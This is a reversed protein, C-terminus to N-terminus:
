IQNTLVNKIDSLPKMPPGFEHITEGPKEYRNSCKGIACGCSAGCSSGTSRCKCKMTKCLSKKSCSCCEAKVTRKTVMEFGQGHEEGATDFQEFLNNSGVSASTTGSDDKSVDRHTHKFKQIRMQNVLGSLVVMQEKLENVDQNNELINVDTKQSLYGSTEQMLAEAEEKLRAIEKDKEEIEHEYQSCLEHLRATVEFENEVYQTSNIGHKAGAKRQASIRRSELLNRIRKTVESAEETKRQLVMKLRQNSTILNNMKYENRRNDRKLQLIEKELSGKCLRFQVSELKMKCQLQVKQAKLSTIELDTQKTAGEGKQRRISLQSQADLKKKLETVQDGLVDLKQIYGERLKKASNAASSSAIELRDKLDKIEKQFAENQRELEQVRNEYDKNDTASTVPSSSVDAEGTQRSQRSAKRM